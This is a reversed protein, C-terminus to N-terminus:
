RLFDAIRDLAQSDAIVGFHNADAEVVEAGAVNALFADRESEPVIYGGNPGFPLAARVLLAPCSIGAWLARSDQAAGYALDAFVADRDTRTTVGGAGDDILEYRYNDEWMQTWPELGSVSRARTLHAEVSPSSTGLREISAGVPILSDPDPRGAADVLVIRRARDPFSGALEMAIMAGMSHGITDFPGDVGLTDAVAVVDRAHADWGWPGSADSHGRGRVDLAVFRRGAAALRQGVAALSRSTASLGPVGIALPGDAPGFEWARLRGTDLEIDRDRGGSPDEGMVGM